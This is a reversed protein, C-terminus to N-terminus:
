FQRKMFREQWGHIVGDSVDFWNFVHFVHKAMRAAIELHAARLAVVTVTEGVSVTEENSVYGEWLHVGGDGVLERGKCGHLVIEITVTADPAIAEYLRSFFLL